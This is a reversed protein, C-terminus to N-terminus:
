SRKEIKEYLKTPSNATGLKEYGGEVIKWLTFQQKATNQSILYEATPTKYIVGHGDETKPLTKTTAM